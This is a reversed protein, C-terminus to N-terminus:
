FVDRILHADTPQRGNVKKLIAFNGAMKRAHNRGSGNLLLNVAQELNPCGGLVNFM